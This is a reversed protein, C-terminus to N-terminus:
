ESRHKLMVSMIAYGESLDEETVIIDDPLQLKAPSFNWIAKIGSDVMKIAAAQANASPVSLIGLEINNERIYDYLENMNHIRVSRVTKGTKEPNNDFAAIIRLGHRKFEHYGLLAEGLSGAGVLVARTDRDWGLFEEISAILDKVLYGRKPRGVINTFTLDKRVQISNLNLRFGIDTASIWEFDMQDYEYLLRLYYPIRRITPVPIDVNKKIM